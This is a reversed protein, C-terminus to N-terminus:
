NFDIQATGNTLYLKVDKWIGAPYTAGYLNDLTKPTDYGVWVAVTYYPTM